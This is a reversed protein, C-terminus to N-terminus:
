RAAPLTYPYGTSRKNHLVARLPERYGSKNEYGHPGRYKSWPHMWLDGFVLYRHGRIGREHHDIVQIHLSALSLDLSRISSLVSLLPNAAQQQYSVPHLGFSVTGAIKGAVTSVVFGSITALSVVDRDLRASEYGLVLSTLSELRL